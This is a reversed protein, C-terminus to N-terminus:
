GSTANAVVSEKQSLKKKKTFKGEKAMRFGGIM